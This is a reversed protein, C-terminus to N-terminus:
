RILNARRKASSNKGQAAKAWVLVGEAVAGAGELGAEEVLSERV